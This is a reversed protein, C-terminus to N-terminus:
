LWHCHDIKLTEHSIELVMDGFVPKMDVILAVEDLGIGIALCPFNIKMGIAGAVTWDVHVDGDLDIRARQDVKFIFYHLDPFSTFRGVVDLQRDAQAKREWWQGLGGVQQHEGGVERPDATGIKRKLHAGDVRERRNGICGLAGDANQSADFHWQRPDKETLFDQAIDEVSAGFHAFENEVSRWGPEVVVRLFQSGSSAGCCRLRRM